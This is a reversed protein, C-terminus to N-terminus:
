AACLFIYRMVVNTHNRYGLSISHGLFMMNFSGAVSSDEIEIRGSLYVKFEFTVMFGRLVLLGSDDYVTFESPLASIFSLLFVFLM